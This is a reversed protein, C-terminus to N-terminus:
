VDTGHGNSSPPTVVAIGPIPTNYPSADGKHHTVSRTRQMRPFGDADVDDERLCMREDEDFKAYTPQIAELRVINDAVPADGTDVPRSRSDATISFSFPVRPTAMSLGAESHYYLPRKKLHVVVVSVNDGSKHLIAADRIRRAAHPANHARSAIRGATLDDLVDWM